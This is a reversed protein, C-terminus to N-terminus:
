SQHNDPNNYVYTRIIEKVEENISNKGNNM